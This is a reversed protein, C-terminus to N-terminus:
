SRSASSTLPDTRAARRPPLSRHMAIGAKIGQAAAIAVLQEEGTVDGAAWVGPVSTEMSANVRICRGETLECGLARALETRFETAISFFAASAPLLRGDAFRLGSLRGRDGEFRRVTQEVIQVGRSALDARDESRIRASRGDTVVTIRSTWQMLKLVFERTAPSWSVVAIPQDRVEYGDCYPCVFVSSGYFEAFNDIDPYVDCAGTALLICGVRWVREEADAIEFSGSKGRVDVIRAASCTVGVELVQNRAIERLEESSSDKVGLYNRVHAAWANRTPGGDFVVVHRRERGLTLAAALGAFGAGVIGIEADVGAM